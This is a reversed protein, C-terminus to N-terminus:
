EDIHQRKADEHREGTKERHGMSLPREIRQGQINRTLKMTFIRVEGVASIYKRVPRGSIRLPLPSVSLVVFVISM